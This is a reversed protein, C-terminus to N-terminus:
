ILFLFFNFFIMNSEYQNRVNVDSLLSLRTTYSSSSLFPPVIISGNFIDMNNYIQKHFISHVNM